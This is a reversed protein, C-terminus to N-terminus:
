VYMTCNCSDTLDGLALCAGACTNAVYLLTPNIAVIKSICTTTCSHLSVHPNVYTPSHEESMLSNIFTPNITDYDFSHSSVSHECCSDRVPIFATGVPLHLLRTRPHPTHVGSPGPAPLAPMMAPKVSDSPCGHRVSITLHPQHQDQRCRYCPVSSDNMFINPNLPTAFSTQLKLTKLVQPAQHHLRHGAPSCSVLLLRRGLSCCLPSLNPKHHMQQRQSRPLSLAPLLDNSTQNILPDNGSQPKNGGSRSSAVLTNAEPPSSLHQAPSVTSVCSKQPIWCIKLTWCRLHPPLSLPPTLNQGLM